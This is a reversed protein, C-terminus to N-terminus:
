AGAARCMAAPRPRSRTTSRRGSRAPASRSRACPAASATADRGRRVRRAAHDDNMKRTWVLLSDAANSTGQYSHGGGKVVLRLNNQRAFNVAAVVDDTNRAAVAYASPQSTWADVWGLTQTLAVEDGLFYPNKVSKLLQTCAAGAAGQHLEGVALAGQGARRRGTPSSSGNGALALRPRRPPRALDARRRTASAPSPLSHSARRPCAFTALSGSCNDETGASPPTAPEAMPTRAVLCRRIRTPSRRGSRRM